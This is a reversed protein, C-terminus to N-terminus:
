WKNIKLACHIASLGTLFCIGLWVTLPGDKVEAATLTLLQFPLVPFSQLSYSKLLSPFNKWTAAHGPLKRKKELFGLRLSFFHSFKLSTHEMHTTCPFLVNLIKQMQLWQTPHIPFFIYTSQLKLLQWHPSPFQKM